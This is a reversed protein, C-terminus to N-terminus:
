DHCECGQTFLAEPHHCSYCYQIGKSTKHIGHCSYCEVEGLHTDHPNTGEFVTSDKTLETLSQYSGHCKLCFENPFKREVVENANPDANEHVQELATLEHCDLCTLGAQAHTYASLESDSLSEEYPKM